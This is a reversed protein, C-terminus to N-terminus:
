FVEDAYLPSGDPYTSDYVTPVTGSCRGMIAASRRIPDSLLGGGGFILSWLVTSIEM